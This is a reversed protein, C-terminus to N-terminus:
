KEDSREKKKKNQETQTAAFFDKESSRQHQENLKLANGFLFDDNKRFIHSVKWEFCELM